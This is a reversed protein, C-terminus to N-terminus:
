AQFQIADITVNVTAVEINAQSELADAVAGRISYAIDPLRYGYLVQVHADVIVQEDEEYILIGPTVHKRSRSSIFGGSMPKTGVVAVGDVQAIALAVITEIVGPAITFSRSSTNAEM